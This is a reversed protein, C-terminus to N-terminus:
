SAHAFLVVSLVWRAFFLGVRGPNVSEHSLGYGFTHKWARYQKDRLLTGNDTM